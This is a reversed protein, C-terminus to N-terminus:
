VRRYFLVYADATVVYTVGLPMVRADDLEYWQTEVEATAGAVKVVAKFHGGETSGDHNAVAFLEYMMRPRRDLCSTDSKGDTTFLRRGSSDSELPETQRMRLRRSAATTTM